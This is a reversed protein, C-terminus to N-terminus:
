QGAGVMEVSVSNDELEIWAASRSAMSGPNVFVTGHAEEYGAAEHIHGSFVLLPAPDQTQWLATLAPSGTHQGPAVLDRYGYVPNHLLWIEAPLFAALPAAFGAEPAELPTGGIPTTTSGGLGAFTYGALLAQAKHLNRLGDIAAIDTEVLMERPDWNGPIVFCHPALSRLTVLVEKVFALPQRSVIDGLFAILEPQRIEALQCFWEFGPRSNHLDSGALITLRRESSM